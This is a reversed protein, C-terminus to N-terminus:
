SIPFAASFLLAFGIGIPLGAVLGLFWGVDPGTYPMFRHHNYWYEYIAHERDSYSKIESFKREVSRAACAQYVGVAIGLVFGAIILIIGVVGHNISM